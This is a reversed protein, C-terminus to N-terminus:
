GTGSEGEEEALARTLAAAAAEDLAHLADRIDREPMPLARELNRVAVNWAASTRRHESIGALTLSVTYSRGDAPNRARSVHGRQSMARLHDLTTTVPMALHEAMQTPTLPGFEYLVSYVAYEDPRLVCDRLAHGLLARLRQSVVFVDFLLSIRRSAEGRNM